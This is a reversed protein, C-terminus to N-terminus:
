FVATRPSLCVYVANSRLTRRAGPRPGAAGSLFQTLVQVYVGRLTAPAPCHAPLALSVNTSAVSRPPRRATHRCLWLSRLKSAVSRPSRRASRRRLSTSTFYPSRSASRWRSPPLALQPTPSAPAGAARDLDPASKAAEPSHTTRLPSRSRPLAHAARPESVPAGPRPGAAVVPAPCHAPPGLLRLRPLPDPPLALPETWTQLLNQSNPPARPRSCVAAEPSRTAQTCAAEPRTATGRALHGTRTAPAAKTLPSKIKLRGCGLLPSV